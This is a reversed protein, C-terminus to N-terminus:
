DKDAMHRNKQREKKPSDALENNIKNDVAIDIQKTNTTNPNLMYEIKTMSNYALDETPQKQTM